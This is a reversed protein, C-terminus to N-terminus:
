RCISRVPEAGSYVRLRRPALPKHEVGEAVFVDWGDHVSYGLPRPMFDRYTTWADDFARVEQRLSIFEAIKIHFFSRKVFADMWLTDGHTLGVHFRPVEGPQLLGLEILVATVTAIM